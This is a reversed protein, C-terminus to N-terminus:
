KQLIGRLLSMDFKIINYNPSIAVRRQHYLYASPCYFEYDVITGDDDVILPKVLVQLSTARQKREVRAFLQPLAFNPVSQVGIGLVWLKRKYHAYSLSTVTCM